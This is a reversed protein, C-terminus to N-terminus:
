LFPSLLRVMKESFQRMRSRKMWEELRLEASNELDEYFLMALAEAQEQDYVFAAVEFNLDFSRLDLNATGVSLLKRDAVMTKAHIFGKQYRFIRVGARMLEEYYAEAAKNVIFSDGKEPVLLCVDVGRLATMILTQQLQEDPIYYPTTLLVERRALQMAQILGYLISSSDSDPGSSVIQVSSTRDKEKVEPFYNREIGINEKSCFNWDSLFIQQLLYTGEGEILLQTDRWYLTSTGDNRYKDCINIGGVFSVEGDIVAIKRHNRYNLRNALAILRIKNFPYCKVGNRILERVFRGRIGKSGFDDYIFRVEVGEQAKRILIEKIANGIRDNEYIYFELHIHNKAGKLRETLLPFFSEGNLLIEVRNHQLLPSYAGSNFNTLLTILPRYSQISENESHDLQKKEELIKQRFTELLADDVQLKKNYIKRKRYNIGFSFYFVVGLIPVFIVLLLYALTKSVSRTDWIIRLCVGILLLLYTIEALIVWSLHGM